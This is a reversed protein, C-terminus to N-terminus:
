ARPHYKRHVQRLRESSVATYIQTTAIDAHGLMEQVTRLDVDGEVLHTAFAHRLTHPSIAIGAARAAAKVALWIAQRTLRGGRANLFLAGPDPRASLHRPRGEVLYRGVWGISARGLPVLREKGGKGRVRVLREAISLDGPRLGVVESVRLGSGYLLELMARDRLGGPTSVDIAELIREAAKAGIAKPLPRGIRPGEVEETPDNELGHEAVIFKFFTKLSSLARAVSRPKLGSASLDAIHDHVDRRTVAAPTSRRRALLFSAARDLDHLYSAVTHPSLTREAALHDRFADLAQTWASRPRRSDESRAEGSGDSPASGSAKGIRGSVGRVRTRM